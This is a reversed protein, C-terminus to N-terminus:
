SLKILYEVIGYYLEQTHILTTFLNLIHVIQLQTLKLQFSNVALDFQELNPCNHLFSAKITTLSDPLWLSVLEPISMFTNELVETIPARITLQQIHQSNHFAYRELTQVSQPINVTVLSSCSFCCYGITTTEKPLRLDTTSYSVVILTSLNKNYVNNEYIEFNQNEGEIAFSVNTGFFSEGILYSLSPKIVFTMSLPCGSFAAAQIQGLKDNLKISSLKKCDAFCHLALISLSMCNSLDLSQLQVFDQFAFRGIYTIQCNSAATISEVIESCQRFIGADQPSDPILKTNAPIVFSNPCSTVGTLQGQGDLQYISTM